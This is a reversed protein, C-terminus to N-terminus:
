ITTIFISVNIFSNFPFQQLDNMVWSDAQDFQIHTQKLPIQAIVACVLTSSGNQVCNILTSQWSTALATDSAANAWGPAINM